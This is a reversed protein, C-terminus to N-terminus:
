SALSAVLALAFGALLGFMPSATTLSGNSVGGKTGKKTTNHFPPFDKNTNTEAYLDQTPINACKGVPELKFPPNHTLAANLTYGTALDVSIEYLDHQLVIFGTDLLTANGMIQQFADWSDTGNVQGGAVRWDNTDFQAGSPSRTWIMPRLGMALSIARVRDDIDGFPPRMCTPTVGLVRRISERTWGLEAVIQENTLATLHRHSWTHVCIEHGSMYEQVLIQPREIVRSGVVFFTAKIAKKDLYNLLDPTFPAPGDDFSVGWTQKDPCAFIDSPRTYGGCTWWGRNSSDAAAATDNVCSGDVTPGFTPIDFGTLEDMWGAVEETDTPPVKDQAPWEKPSFVFATPLPIAGQYPPTEGPKYTKSVKSPTGAPMGFNLSKLPPASPDDPAPYVNTNTPAASTSTGSSSAGSRTSTTSTGTGSGTSASSSSSTSQSTSASQRKAVNNHHQRKELSATALTAFALLTALSHLKM